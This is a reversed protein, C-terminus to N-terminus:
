RPRIGALHLLIQDNSPCQVIEEVVRTKLAPECKTTACRDVLQQHGRRQAIRFVEVQGMQLWAGDFQQQLGDTIGQLLQANM